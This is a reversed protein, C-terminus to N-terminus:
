TSDLAAGATLVTRFVRGISATAASVLMLIMNRIRSSNLRNLLLLFSM